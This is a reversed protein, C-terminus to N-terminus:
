KQASAAADNKWVARIAAEDGFGAPAAPGPDNASYWRLNAASAVRSGPMELHGNTDTQRLWNWAYELWNSRYGKERLAFWTIEDYGWCFISPKDPPNPQGPRRSRGFNDFEVLYPLHECTWGSPAVGGKSRNYISDLYGVKLFGEGPHDPSEAIRLPFSHFDFLLKGGEVFGGTPAHADCLVLHRRAHNHAYSRVRSLMDIWGAHGSDNKDMLGVQGFHIAEIGVDIYNRALFYFWMRTELRSMDPVSSGNGWHNVFRGDPYLMEAYRFPRSAAPQGFETFVWDPVSIGEVNTTVIEFEAAQLIMEPDAQHLRAAFPRATQLFRNLNTERGWLMLARGVFKAHSDLLLRLNDRPDVGHRNPSQNLDDHLLETFSISRALYNELVARSITTDFKYDQSRACTAGVVSLTLAAWLCLRKLILTEIKM